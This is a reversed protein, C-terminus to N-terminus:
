AVEITAIKGFLRRKILFNRGECLYYIYGEWSTYM